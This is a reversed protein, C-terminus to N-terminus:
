NDDNESGPLYKNRSDKLNKSDIENSLGMLTKLLAETTGILPRIIIIPSSKVVSVLSEQFNHSQNIEHKLNLLTKKTSGLNSSLSKYASKLGQEINEPPNSYLSVKKFDGYPKRVLLDLVLLTEEEDGEEADLYEDESDYDEDESDANVEEFEEQSFRRIRPAIQGVNRTDLLLLSKSLVDNDFDNPDDLDIHSYIAKRPEQYDLQSGSKKAMIKSSALLRSSGVEDEKNTPSTPLDMIEDSDKMPINSSRASSGEGGFFEEGQELIVQTGSALKAGLNLIEYGTTKAFKKTGKQISRLIRGDKKYEKIPIEVLDKFGSGIGVVSKVPGLGALIGPLQTAQVDPTWVGKLLSNLKQPGSIGYLKVKRLKINSGDLIFFNMFESTNGSRIGVYDVKKPKYDLKLRVTDVELKQIYLIEDPPLEFRNDKFECFRSFFDLTDQDVYLRLPLLSVSIIAESSVLRPDPRVNTIKVNLMEKGSEREGLSTMYSLFKSWTSSPVNDHVIVLDISLVITNLIELKMEPDTYGLRPDRTSSVKADVTLGKLDINIKHSHSRRLKLNKYNTGISHEDTSFEYNTMQVENNITNVLNYANTSETATLHISLYLTEDIIPRDDEVQENEEDKFSIKKKKKQKSKPSEEEERGCSPSQLLQDTQLAAADQNRKEENIRAEVKKVVTRINRRTERWDYGDFLFINIKTLNVVVKLPYTVPPSVVAAFHDEEFVIPEYLQVESEPGSSSSSSGNNRDNSSSCNAEYEEVVDLKKSSSLSVPTTSVDKPNFWNDDVDKFTDIPSGDVEVKFRDKDTFNLPLKLDNILQLLTFSSDACINLKHDNSNIKFEVKPLDKRIGLARDHESAAKLDTIVTLGLHVLNAHGISVYGKAIYYDQSYKYQTKSTRSPPQPLSPDDILLLSVDRLSSKIYYEYDSFTLDANGMNIILYAKSPLRGPNLGIMCDKLTIRVDFRNAKSKFGGGRDVILQKEIPKLAARPEEQLLPGNETQKFFNLWSTFYEIAFDCITVDVTNRSYLYLVLPSQLQNANRKQYDGLFYERNQGVRREGNVNKISGQVEGNALIFTEFDHATFRIEGFTDAIDTIEFKLEKILFNISAAKLTNHSMLVSSALSSNGLMRKPKTRNRLMLSTTSTLLMSNSGNAIGFGLDDFNILASQLLKSFKGVQEMLHTLSALSISGHIKSVVMSKQSLSLEQKFNVSHPSTGIRKMWSKWEKAKFSFRIDHITILKSELGNRTFSINLKQIGINADLSNFFIPSMAAGINTGSELELSLNWSSTRLSFQSTTDQVKPVKVKLGGGGRSTSKLKSASEPSAMFSQIADYASVMASFNASISLLSAAVKLIQLVSGENLKFEAVKSLLISIENKKDALNKCLEFRVDARSTRPQQQNSPQDQGSPQQDMDRPAPSSANSSTTSTEVPSTYQFIEVPQTATTKLVKLSEIGGNILVSNKQKIFINSICILYNGITKAFEALPLLASNTSILINAIRFKQLTQRDNSGDEDEHEKTEETNTPIEEYVDDNKDYEPFRTNQFRLGSRNLLRLLQQSKKKQHLKVKFVRTLKGLLTIVTPALPIFAIKITQIDIVLDVISQLGVFSTELQDIHVILAKNLSELITSSQASSSKSSSDHSSSSSSSPASKKLGQSNSFANSTASMYISSAEEHTYIMSHMLSEDGFDNPDEDEDEEDSSEEATKQKLEDSDVDSEGKPTDSNLSYIRINNLQVHRTGNITQVAGSDVEILIDHLESILKIRLNSIRIQLRLIAIDAAKSMVGSLASPKVTSAESSTQSDGEESSSTSLALEQSHSLYDEFSDEDLMVTNALDATSQVLQQQLHNKIDENVDLTPSLVVELENLHILVVGGGMVGGQNLIELTKLQGYRLNFGPLKGVKEPDLLVDKIVFNNLSVEELNPLDIQSFLLLKQLVYLLLRKQINQPIWFQPSM